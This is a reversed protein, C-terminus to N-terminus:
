YIDWLSIKGDKSGVSLWHTKQTKQNRQQRVTALSGENRRMFQTEKKEGPKSGADTTPSATSDNGFVEAFAVAYCGDKHWKLVALEKMTKCSYVRTRSDWGATAFIKGDSRIRLGQQGAHKTSIMKLAKEEAHGVGVLSADPILHKVLVSDASSSLFYDKSPAIDISLVPQTHPKSAYLKEWKWATGKGSASSSIEPETLQGRRVFVMVQGDEYASTAYLEGSSLLLRVAMVMGTSTAPDAPITSVRRELPLHFIDIAGSNLANPVAFLVPPQSTSSPPSQTDSSPGEQKVDDGPSPAELFIMDFACFNLANVPLSHLMWPQNQVAEGEKVDVPLTKDLFGEDKVGFRWVRLKHDRGHTYVATGDGGFEFGKAELVAGGHAKWSVVPRKSVMDWVIIWGEADGSILRLNNAFLHLAHIPSAHGRLIYTPTAPSQQNSPTAM